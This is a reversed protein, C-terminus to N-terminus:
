QNSYVEFCRLSIALAEEVKAKGLPDFKNNGVGQIIREKVMAYVSPRGWDHMEDDDAFRTVSELDVTINVGAKKLTRDIMTAMQERTITGNGFETDSIGKTIGLSYAKLVYDDKTDKFPNNEPVQVTNKVIAAYLEVAVACFDQRSIDKTFDKNAFTEPILYNEKAERLEKEAWDDAKTWPMEEETKVEITHKAKVKEFTYSDVAGVSKGDILVDTIEYGNDAKFKYEQTANAEVSTKNPSITANEAKLTIKYSSPAAAGGGGGGTSTKINKWQAKIVTDETIVIKKGKSGKDWKSFTKGEPATFGCAPLSYKSGKVVQEGSMDGSGGNADFTVTCYVIEEEGQEIKIYPKSYFKGDTSDNLNTFEDVKRADRATTGEYLTATEGDYKLNDIGCLYLAYDSNTAGTTSIELIANNLLTVDNQCTLGKTIRSTCEHTIKLTANDITLNTDDYMTLYDDSLRFGTSYYSIYQNDELESPYELAYCNVVAGDSITIDTISYSGISTGQGYVNLTGAGKIDFNKSGTVEMGYWVTSDANVGVTNTSGEVLEITLSGYTWIYGYGAYKNTQNINANNLTLVFEPKTETGVNTLWWEGTETSGGTANVTEGVPPLVYVSDDYYYERGAEEDRQRQNDYIDQRLFFMSGVSLERLEETSSMTGYYEFALELNDSSEIEALPFTVVYSMHEWDYENSSNTYDFWWRGYENEEVTHVKYSKIEDGCKVYVGAFDKGHDFTNDGFAEFFVYLNEDDNSVYINMPANPHGSDPYCMEDVFLYDESPVVLKTTSFAGYNSNLSYDYYFSNKNFVGANCTPFKFSYQEGMIDEPARASIVLEGKGSFAFDTYDVVEILDNDTASLKREYGEPCVGDLTLRDINLEYCVGKVVRLSTIPSDITFSTESVEKDFYLKSLLEYGNGYDAYLTVANDEAAQTNNAFAVSAIIILIISIVVFFQKLLKNM